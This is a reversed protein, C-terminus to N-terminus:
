DIRGEEKLRQLIMVVGPVQAPEPKYDHMSFFRISGIEAGPQPEVVPDYLFCEQEMTVGTKEGFAPASIHIYFKLDSISINLNLEESSERVLAEEPSEGPNIKGGPLYFAQKNNSFALLLKRNHIIVIGATALSAMNSSLISFERLSAFSACLCFAPERKRRPAEKADKRSVVDFYSFM